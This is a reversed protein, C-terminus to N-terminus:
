EAAAASNASISNRIEARCSHCNTGAKLIAGVAEVTRCGGNVADVITNIGVSLCACVIAGTDPMDAGPRGALVDSRRAPDELRRRLLGAAWQRSVLVPDPSPVHRLARRHDNGMHARREGARDAGM